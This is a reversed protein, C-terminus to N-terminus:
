DFYDKRTIKAKEVVSAVTFFGIFALALTLIAMIGVLIWMIIKLFLM